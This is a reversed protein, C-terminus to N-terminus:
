LKIEEILSDYEMSNSAIIGNITLIFLEDLKNTIKYSLEYLEYFNKM